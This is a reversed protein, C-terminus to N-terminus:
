GQHEPPIDDDGGDSLADDELEDVALNLSYARSCCHLAYIVQFISIKSLVTARCPLPHSPNPFRWTRPGVLKFRGKVM